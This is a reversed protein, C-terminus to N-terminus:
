HQKGTLRFFQPPSQSDDLHITVRIKEDLVETSISDIWGFSDASDLNLVNWEEFSDSYQIRIGKAESRWEAVLAAGQGGSNTSPFSADNFDSLEPDTCFAWELVNELQDEDPDSLPNGDSLGNDEVWARYPDVKGCAELSGRFKPWRSSYALPSDGHVAYIKGDTSGFYVTGDPGIAPSSDVFGTTQFSWLQQGASSVAYLNNDGSGVYITGNDAIAPTSYVVDNAGTFPWGPKVAGTQGDFAFLDDSGTGIYVTGDPGIVPSSEIGELGTNFAWKPTDQGPTLAIVYGDEDALYITGDKAIAPSAPIGFGLDVKWLVNGGPAIQAVNGYLDAAWINGNADITPSSDVWDQFVPNLITNNTQWLLNGGSDVAYLSNEGNGFYIVGDNGIAPSGDIVGFSEFKWLEQGTDRDLAYLYGDWSGIYLIGNPSLAPTSDVWDGVTTKWKLTGDPNLAIVSNDNIGDDTRDNVGIYLVGDMDIAPSSYIEGQTSYSWNLTGPNQAYASSTFCFVAALTTTIWITKL